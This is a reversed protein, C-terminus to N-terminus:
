PFGFAHLVLSRAEWHSLRMSRSLRDTGCSIANKLWHGRRQTKGHVTSIARKVSFSNRAAIQTRTDPRMSEKHQLSHNAIAEVQNRRNPITAESQLPATMGIM